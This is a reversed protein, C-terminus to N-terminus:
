SKKQMSDGRSTELIYGSFKLALENISVICHFTSSANIHSKLNERMSATPTPRRPIYRETSKYTSVLTKSSYVAEM